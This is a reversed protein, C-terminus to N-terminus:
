MEWPYTEPMDPSPTTTTIPQLATTKDLFIFADYRQPLITPVYNTQERQPNYVVGVARQDKLRWFADHTTVEESIILKNRPLAHHMLAEWSGTRAPPMNMVQMPEDWYRGAIVSGEYSGFGILVSDDESHEERILQGINIMGSHVMSTYRADGVHTNHAWIIAKAESGYRQMLDRVTEAMHSDRINWSAADARIMTRYYREANVVIRANQEADFAAEYDDAYLPAIQRVLQLIKVVAAECASPIFAASQAYRNADGAYPEFCDYAARAERAAAPDVKRLYRVVADMSEWLSYVDLGYFGVRELLPRNSNHAHIWEALEKMEHNAWMWTPWRKFSHLVEEASAGADAYGKCYRNLLYCDPWDGEVAIFSFGKETILRQSIRSRWQYYEHTGHSAEGLLVYHADGIRNMLADIDQQDDWPRAVAEIERAPTRTVEAM